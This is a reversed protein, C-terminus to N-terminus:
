KLYGGSTGIKGNAGYADATSNQLVYIRANGKGSCSATITGGETITQKDGTVVDIYTGAPLNSFTSNGSITVLAFSDVGEAANTYRRKFSMSGSCKDTSYQGKQLAPVSQRIQGM